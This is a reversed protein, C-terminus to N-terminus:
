SMVGVGDGDPRRAPPQEGEQERGLGFYAARVFPHNRVQEVPGEFAVRGTEMVYIDRAISFIAEANQEVILLSVKEEDHIVQLAHMMKKVLVPSIGFSLEDALLIRPQLMLARGLALMQREGGSLLGSQVSLRDCLVPFLDFVFDRRRTRSVRTGVRPVADLNEQVTLTAFVKDREPVLAIGSRAIADAGRKTFDDDGLLVRGGIISGAEAHTFGSIARLLTTKGAGNAGLVGVISGEPVSISVDEVAIASGTYAVSLNEVRLGASSM